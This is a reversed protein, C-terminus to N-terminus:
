EERINCSWTVWIVGLHRESGPWLTVEGRRGPRLPNTKVKSDAQMYKEHFSRVRTKLRIECGVVQPGLCKDTQSMSIGIHRSELDTLVPNHPEKCAGPVVFGDTRPEIILNTVLANAQASSALGAALM